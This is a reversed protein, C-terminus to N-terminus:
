LFIVRTLSINDKIRYKISASIPRVGSSVNSHLPTFCILHNNWIGGDPNTIQNQRVKNVSTNRATNSRSELLIRAKTRSSDFVTDFFFRKSHIQTLRISSSGLEFREFAISYFMDFPQEM